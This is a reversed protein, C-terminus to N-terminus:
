ELFSDTLMRSKSPRWGSWMTRDEWLKGLVERQRVYRSSCPASTLLYGASGEDLM